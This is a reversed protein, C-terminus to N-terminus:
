TNKSASDVDNQSDPLSDRGRIRSVSHNQARPTTM